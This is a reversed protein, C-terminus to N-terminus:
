DRGPRAPRRDGAAGERGPILPIMKRGEGGAGPTAFYLGNMWSIDM